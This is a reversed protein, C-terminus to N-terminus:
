CKADVLGDEKAALILLPCHPANSPAAFRAAALLQRLANSTSVPRAEHWRVWDNLIRQADPPHRTTLRLITQEWARARSRLFIHKLLAPYNGIRLRQYFPSIGRLSTNILVACEIEAPYRSAWDIAVMAGLSMALVRVPETVGRRKLDSRCHETMAAVTLPSQMNNLVGNGSLDLTLVEDNPFRNHLTDVFGGWHRSERTLGRLLIWRSM